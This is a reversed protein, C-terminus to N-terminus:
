AVRVVARELAELFADAWAFVDHDLVRQRMAHMRARADEGKDHLANLLTDALASVDHPNVIDAEPLEDAAGAFESLVLRGGGDIRSALYEKAVLNMGDRLPTILMVDAALYYAALSEQDFSRRFYHVPARGVESYEGNIEGVLREVSARLQRYDDVRERSPVAIQVFVADRASLRGSAFLEQLARLRLDIGKTYDLRDVGLIIRRGGLEDRIRRTRAQVAPSAALREFRRADISIPYAAIRVPRGHDRVGLEEPCCDAFRRAALRFNAADRSTQFGAVDAGLLGRVLERRWPTQAFLEIPPFPIHLFFGIRLDPRLESLMRPVLMLHYDQVWAMSDPELHAAAAEAFRRNIREYTRWWRPEFVPPRIADHFLPWLTSNSFGEYYGALEARTIRVPVNTFGAFDFPDSAQEDGAWGIWTGGVSRLIPTLASVLGGPSLTWGEGQRRVPLRNALVALPTRMPAEAGPADILEAASSDPNASDNPLYFSM